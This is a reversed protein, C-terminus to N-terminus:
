AVRDSLETQLLPGDDAWWLGRKPFRVQITDKFAGADHTKKPTTKMTQLACPTQKM